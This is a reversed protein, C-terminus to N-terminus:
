EVKAEYVERLMRGDRTKWEARGNASRGLVVGAATSPSSFGYVSSRRWRWLYIGTRQLEPRKRAASYLPRPIVLGVGTWGDKEILKLGDPNGDPM